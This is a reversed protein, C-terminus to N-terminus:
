RAVVIAAGGAIDLITDCLVDRRSPQGSCRCCRDCRCSDRRGTAARWKWGNLHADGIAISKEEDARHNRQKPFREHRRLSERRRGDHPDLNGPASRPGDMFRVERVRITSAMAMPTAVIALKLM